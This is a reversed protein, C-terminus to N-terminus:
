SVRRMARDRPSLQAEQESVACCLVASCITCPMRVHANKDVNNNTLKLKEFSLSQAALQSGTLPSDPHRYVQRGAHPPDAKGAVVWSSRHYAYRYRKADVPVIDLLVSYRADVDVGRGSFSVRLTPFMRRYMGGDSFQM